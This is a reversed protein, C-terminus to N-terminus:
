AGHLRNGGGDLCPEHHRGCLGAGDVGLLLGHVRRWAAAGDLIRRVFPNQRAQATKHALEQQKRRQELADKAQEIQEKTERLAQIAEKEQQWHAKMAASREKLNALEAELKHRRDVTARDREKALAQREIELQVIRREVEDIETPLSDIEIRVHNAFRGASYEKAAVVHIRNSLGERTSDRM